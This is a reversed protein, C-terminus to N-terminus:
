VIGMKIASDYLEDLDKKLKKKKNESLRSMPFFTRIVRGSYHIKRMMASSDRGLAVIIEPELLEIESQLFKRCNEMSGNPCKTADTLYMYYGKFSSIAEVPNKTINGFGPERLLELLNNRLSDRDDTKYFYHGGKPPPEIAVFMIKVGDDPIAGYKPNLAFKKLKLNVWKCEKCDAVEKRLNELENKDM